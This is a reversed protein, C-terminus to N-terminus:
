EGLRRILQREVVVRYEDVSDLSGSRLQLVGRQRRCEARRRERDALEPPDVLDDPARLEIRPVEVPLHGTGRAEEYGHFAGRDALAAPRGLQVPIAVGCDKM